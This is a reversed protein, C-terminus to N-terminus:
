WKEDDTLTLKSKCACTVVVADGAGLPTFLYSFRGFMSEVPRRQAFPCVKDHDVLWAKLRTVQQDDLQFHMSM